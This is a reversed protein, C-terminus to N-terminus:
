KKKGAKLLLEAQAAIAALEPPLVSFDQKPKAAVNSNLKVRTAAAKQGPVTKLLEDQRTIADGIWLKLEDSTKLAELKATDFGLLEEITRESPNM